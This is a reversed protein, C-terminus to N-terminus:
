SHDGQLLLADDAVAIRSSDVAVGADVIAAAAGAGGTRGSASSEVVVSVIPFMQRRGFSRCGWKRRDALVEPSTNRAISEM